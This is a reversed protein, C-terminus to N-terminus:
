LTKCFNFDLTEVNRKAKGDANFNEIIDARSLLKNDIFFGKFILKDGADDYALIRESVAGNMALKGSLMLFRSSKLQKMEDLLTFSANAPENSFLIKDEAITIQRDNKAPDCAEFDAIQWHGQIASGQPRLTQSADSSDDSCGTLALVFVCSLISATKKYM